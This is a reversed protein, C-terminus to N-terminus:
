RVKRGFSKSPGSRAPPVSSPAAPTSAQAKYRAIAADADFGGDEDPGDSRRGRLATFLWFLKLVLPICFLLGVIALGLVTPALGNTKTNEISGSVDIFYFVLYGCYVVPVFSGILGFLPKLSRM